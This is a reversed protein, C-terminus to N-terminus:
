GAVGRPLALPSEGRRSERENSLGFCFPLSPFGIGPASVFSFFSFGGKPFFAFNLGWPSTGVGLPAVFIVGVALLEGDRPSDLGVKCGTAPASIHFIEELPDFSLFCFVVGAAGGTPVFLTDGESGGEGSTFFCGDKVEAVDGIITGTPPMSGGFAGASECALSAGADGGSRAGGDGPEPVTGGGEKGAVAALEVFLAAGDMSAIGDYKECCDVFLEAFVSSGFFLPFAGSGGGGAGIGPFAGSSSTGVGSGSGLSLPFVGSEGVGAGTFDGSIEIGVAGGACADEGETAGGIRDGVGADGAGRGAGIDGGGEGGIWLGTIAGLGVAVGGAGAEGAAGGLGGASPLKNTGSREEDVDPDAPTMGAGRGKGTGGEDGSVAVGFLDAGGGSAAVGSM